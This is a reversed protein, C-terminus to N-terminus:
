QKASAKEKAIAKELYEARGRYFHFRGSSTYNKDKTRGPFEVSNTEVQYYIAAEATELARLVALQVKPSSQEDNVKELHRSVDFLARKYLQVRNLAAALCPIALVGLVILGFKLDSM